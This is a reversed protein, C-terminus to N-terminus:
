GTPVLGLQQMMALQDIVTWHEVIKGDAFRLIDMGDISVSKGTPPVGFMDGDHTGTLRFRGSVKDGEALQDQYEIKLDSFAVLFAEIQARKSALGQPTGPPFSHDVIDDAFFEDIRDIARGNFVVEVAERAQEKNAM